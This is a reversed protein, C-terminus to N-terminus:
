RDPHATDGLDRRRRRAIGAHPRLVFCRDRLRQPEVTIRRRLEALAMLDRHPLHGRDPWEALPRGARAELVEVPEDAPFGILVVGAQEFAGRWDLGLLRWFLAVGQVL